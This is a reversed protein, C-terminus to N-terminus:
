ARRPRMSGLTRDAAAAMQAWPSISLDVLSMDRGFVILDIVGGSDDWSGLAAKGGLGPGKDICDAMIVLAVRVVAALPLTVPKDPFAESTNIYIVCSGVAWKHPVLFGETRSILMPASAKDANIIQELAHACHPRDPAFIRHGGVRPGQICHFPRERTIFPPLPYHTTQPNATDAALLGLTFFCLPVLLGLLM